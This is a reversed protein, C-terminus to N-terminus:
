KNKTVEEWRSGIIISILLTIHYYTIFTINTKTALLNHKWEHRETDIQEHVAPFGCNVLRFWGIQYSPYEEFIQFQNIKLTNYPHTPTTHSLKCPFMHKCLYIQNEQMLVKSYCTPTPQNPLALTLFCKCQPTYNEASHRWNTCRMTTDKNAWHQYASTMGRRTEDPSRWTAM